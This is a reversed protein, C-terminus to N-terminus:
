EEGKSSALGYDVDEDPKEAAVFCKEEPSNQNSRM